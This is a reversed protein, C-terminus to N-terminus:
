TLLGPGDEGKKKITKVKNKTRRGNKTLIALVPFDFDTEEIGVSKAVNM